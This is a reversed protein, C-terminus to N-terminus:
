IHFIKWVKYLKKRTTGHLEQPHHLQRHRVQKSVSIKSMDSKEKRGISARGTKKEMSVEDTMM